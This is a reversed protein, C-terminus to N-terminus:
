AGQPLVPAIHISDIKQDLQIKLEINQQKLQEIQKKLEENIITETKDKIKKSQKENQMQILKQEKLMVELKEAQVKSVNSENELTALKEVQLQQTILNKQTQAKAAKLAELKIKPIESKTENMAILDKQQLLEAQAKLAEMRGQMKGSDNNMKIKMMENQLEKAQQQINQVSIKAQSDVALKNVLILEKQAQLEVSQAKMAETQNQKAIEFNKELENIIDNYDSIKDGPIKVNDVYLETVKGNVEVLKYQKGHITSNIIYKSDDNTNVTQPVTDKKNLTYAIQAPQVAPVDKFSPQKHQSFAFATLTTVVIGIVLFTKEMNNLTKNNNTIIRKIRDLLFNKRGSFSAAYGSANYEQFSVLAHIFQKKNKTQQVAIDDCCNEREEKILSSIWLVAPNFFFIIEAIRQFINILFDKRRIHALEHLLIAEIEEPALATLAAAPFLIVPKFYGVVMPVKAIMSKLLLIQKKIGSNEALVQLRANWYDGANFVRRHKLIYVDRLGKMLGLCKILIILFWILVILSEYPQLFTILKEIINASDNSTAAAGASFAIVPKEFEATYNVISFVECCFTFVSTVIFLMLVSSLLKYRVATASRKTSMLIIATFFAFVVGQWLSHILTWFLVQIAKNIFLYHIFYNQM